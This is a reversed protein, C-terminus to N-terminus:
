RGLFLIIRGTASNVANGSVTVTMAGGDLTRGGVGAGVAPVVQETNATDRNALEGGSVDVAYQDLITIDYNDTPATAGPDTVIMYLNYGSCFALDTATFSYNPVTAAAADATWTLIIRRTNSPGGDEYTATAWSGVAMAKIPFIVLFLLICFLRKMKNGKLNISSTDTEVM